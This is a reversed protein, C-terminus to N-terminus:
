QQDRLPQDGGEEKQEKEPPSPPEQPLRKRLFEERRERAHDLEDLTKAPEDLTKAPEDLTKAPEDLTKAPEDLTKAANSHSKAMAMVLWPSNIVVSMEGGLCLLAPSLLLIAALLSFAALM